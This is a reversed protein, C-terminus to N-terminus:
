FAVGYVKLVHCCGAGLVRITDLGWMGVVWAAEQGKKINYFVGTTESPDGWFTLWVSVFVHRIGRFAHPDGPSGWRIGRPDGASGGVSVTWSGLWFRHRDNGISEGWPAVM